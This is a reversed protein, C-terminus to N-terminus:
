YIVIQRRDAKRNRRDNGKYSHSFRPYDSRREDRRRDHFHRYYCRCTGGDCDALPLLPAQRSLFRRGKLKKVAACSGAGPEISVCRFPPKWLGWYAIKRAEEIRFLWWIIGALLLLMAFYAFEIM